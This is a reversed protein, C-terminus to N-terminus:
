QPLEHINGIIEIQSNTNGGDDANLATVYGDENECYWGTFGYKKCFGLKVTYEMKTLCDRLRDSEYIEKGSKDLLGTFQMLIINEDDLADFWATNSHIYIEYGNVGHYIM